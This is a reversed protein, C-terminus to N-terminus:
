QSIASTNTSSIDESCNDPVSQLPVLGVQSLLCQGEQSQLLEAFKRGASQRNDKPYVVYLPYGLPYQNTQFLPVNLYNAKDCLNVDPTIPKGNSRKLAQVSRNTKLALPYGSCQNWTKSFIGFSIIGARGAAFESRGQEQTTRTPQPSPVIKQFQAITSPDQLVLTQFLQVAEPETPMKPLIKLDPGGLEQWNTIEGIYIQRLDELSIQGKLAKSLTAGKNFPVFVFLGDYAIQVKELDNPLEDTLSTIAFDAQGQQVRSVLPSPHHMEQPNTTSQVAQLSFQVEVDPKPRHLIDGLTGNRVPQKLVFSWTGDQESVYKFAGPEIGSIDALKKSSLQQYDALNTQTVQSRLFFWLGAGTFLLALLGFLLLWKTVPKDLTTPTTSGSPQISEPTLFQGLALRAAEASEFPQDIGMLQLIFQKLSPDESPWVQASRPDLPQGFDTTKGSWLYFAVYGLAMLDDAPQLKASQTVAARFLLEWDALDCLYIRFKAASGALLLSELSLNGHVIGKEIQGSPRRLKQSHLFQLTQLVQHLVDRVQTANMAGYETLYHALTSSQIDETILYCRPERVDAIAEVIPALRFDQVRGDAPNLGAVQTFTTKRQQAEEPSFCNEPLLYEKIVVPRSDGLWSRAGLYKKIQYSGRRGELKQGPALTTPFGCDICFKAGKYEQLTQQLRDCNLPSNRTCPYKPYV